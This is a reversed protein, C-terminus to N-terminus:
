QHCWAMVQVLTSKDDFINQPMLRFAIDCSTRMFKIRLMPESIVSKFNSVCRGPDLSIFSAYLKTKKALTMVHAVVIKCDQFFESICCMGHFIFIFVKKKKKAKTINDYSLANLGLCIASM